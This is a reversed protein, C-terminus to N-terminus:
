GTRQSSSRNLSALGKILRVLVIEEEFRREMMGRKMFMRMKMREMRRRVM